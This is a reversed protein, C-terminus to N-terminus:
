SPFAHRSCLHALSSNCCSPFGGDPVHDRNSRMRLWRIRVLTVTTSVSVFLALSMMWLSLQGHEILTLSSGFSVSFSQSTFIEAITLSSRKMHDAGEKEGRNSDIPLVEGFEAKEIINHVRVLGEFIPKLSFSFRGHFPKSTIFSPVSIWFTTKHAAKEASPGIKKTYNKNVHIRDILLLFLFIRKM